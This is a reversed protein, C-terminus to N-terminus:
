RVLFAAAIGSLALAATIPVMTRRMSPAGLWLVMACKLLTNSIVAIVITRAAPAASSPDQLALNAMSLAIADVDTLGALAGTLYLGTDGFSRQAVSAVFIVIAYLAGFKIADGLEFPNNGSEVEARAESRNRRRLLLTIVLSVAGMLVMGLVLSRALTFNVVAVEVVV